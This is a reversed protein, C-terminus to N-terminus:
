SSYSSRFLGNIYSTRITKLAVTKGGTNPGTIVLTSFTYGLNVDIPVVLNADILPHRAGILNLKKEYNISPHIANISIGYNAKAFIFDLKGIITVNEIINDSIPYLLNSLKTFIIEIEKNEDAKLSAIENNLDFINMPEIFVTSGSASVDHVFGKIMTRYEDKVPIVYRDNKITVLSEQIYKSYTASHIFSNLKNKISEELRRRKNRISLLEVSADDSITYEDIISKKITECISPNIYLSTFLKELIPFDIKSNENDTFYYEKLNFALNLIKAIELLNKASLSTNSELIKEIHSIDSIQVFSPSHKKHILHVAESTESLLNSIIDKDTKPFLNLAANKGINTFCFDSLIGLIRNFELKEIYKKYM